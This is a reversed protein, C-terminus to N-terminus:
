SGWIRDTAPTRHRHLAADAGRGTAYIRRPDAGGNARPSAGRADPPGRGAPEAENESVELLHAALKKAKDRIKRAALAAARPECHVLMVVKMGRPLADLTEFM